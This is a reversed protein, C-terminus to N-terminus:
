FRAMERGTVESLEAVAMNYDFVARQFETASEVYTGLSELVEKPEGLGISFNTAALLSLARGAKRTSRALDLAARSENVSLQAREIALPLGSRAQELRAEVKGQEARALAVEAQLTALDLNWRVGLFPGGQLINFQDFLFPNAIDDRSPAWAWLARVGVFLDPYLKAKAVELASQRSRVGLQAAKFAPLTEVLRADSSTGVLEVPKLPTEDPRTGSDLPAGIARRFALLAMAQQRDVQLVRRRLKNRAIELRLVASQEVEGSEMRARAKETAEAFGQEGERLVKGVSAALKYGYYIRKLELAVQQQRRVFEARQAQVGHKAAEIGNSIKGFTYIPQTLRLENRTFFGLDNLVDDQDDPSFLPALDAPLGDPTEGVEAGNVVGFLSVIEGKPWRGARARQVQAQVQGLDARPVRLDPHRESARTLATALDVIEDPTSGEAPAAGSPVPFVFLVSCTLLLAISHSFNM